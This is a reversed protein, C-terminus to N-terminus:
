IRLGVYRQNIWDWASKPLWGSYEHTVGIVLVRDNRDIHPRLQEWIGRATLTTDVLWTSELYHWSDGLSKIAKYFSKYNRGPAKLDYNIAYIM